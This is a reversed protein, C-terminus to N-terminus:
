SKTKNIQALINAVRAKSDSTDTNSIEAAPASPIEPVPESITQEIAAVPATTAVPAAKVATGTKQIGYPRWPMHAFRSPDYAEGALSAEFMEYITNLEDATPRKPRYDELKSLGFKAIADREDASLSREKRKFSSTTYNAKGGQDTKRIVFDTGADYDDPSAELDPDMVGAQILEFLQKGISFQRIPNEPTEGENLGDEFVFGHALWSRKKWYRRATPELQPDDFWKEKRIHGLIPCPDGWMEVCPVRMYVTKPEMGLIGSFQLNIINNELWLLPNIEDGSGDPIFRITTSAGDAIEWFPYRASPGDFRKNNGKNEQAENQKAIMGRMKALKEAQTTM